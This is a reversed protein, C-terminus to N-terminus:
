HKESSAGAEEARQICSYMFVNLAPGRLVRKPLRVAALWECVLALPKALEYLPDRQAGVVQNGFIRPIFLLNM